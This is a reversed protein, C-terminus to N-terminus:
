AKGLLEKLGNDSWTRVSNGGLQALLKLDRDGGVGKIFYPAGGRELGTATLKVPIPAAEITAVTLMGIWAYKRVFAIMSPLRFGCLPFTLKSLGPFIEIGAAYFGHAMLVAESFIEEDDWSL